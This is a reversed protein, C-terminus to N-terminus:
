RRGRLWADRGAPRHRLVAPVRPEFAWFAAPGDADPPYRELLEDRAELYERRAAEIAAATTWWSGIALNMLRLSGLPPRASNRGRRRLRPM